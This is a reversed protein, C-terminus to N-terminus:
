FQPLPDIPRPQSSPKPKDPKPKDSKPQKKHKPAHKKGAPAKPSKSPKEPAAVTDVESRFRQLETTEVVSEDRCYRLSTALGLLLAIVVLVVITGRRERKTMQWLKRSDSM